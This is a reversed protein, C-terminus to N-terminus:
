ENSNFTQEIVQISDPHLLKMTRYSPQNYVWGTAVVCLGEEFVIPSLEFYHTSPPAILLRFHDSLYLYKNDRYKRIRQICGQIRNFGSHKLEAAALPAFYRHRWVGRKSLRAQAEASRYCERYLLNPPFSLAFGLGQRILEAGVNNHQQDFVHALIRGYKDYRQKDYVVFVRGNHLYSHLQERAASALPQSPKDKYGLEPTNIGIIRVRSDDALTLTDGDNIYRVSVELSPQKIACTTDDAYVLAPFSLLFFYFLSAHIIRFLVNAITANVFNTLKGPM